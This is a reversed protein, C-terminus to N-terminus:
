RKRGDVTTVVVTLTNTALVHAGSTITERRAPASARTGRASTADPRAAALPTSARRPTAARAPPRPPPADARPGARRPDGRAHASPRRPLARRRSVSPASAAVVADRAHSRPAPP